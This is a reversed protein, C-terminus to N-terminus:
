SPNDALATLDQMTGNFVDQGGPLSGSNAYQWFTYTVWGGPMTGASTALRALWLPNSTAFAGSNGTCQSWWDSTTYIIASRGTKTRYETMFDSIWRVMSSTSLGYCAPGFPNYELDLAGPLTQHDATWAGGHAAFYDAQATGGSTDPLAFHAAGVVLGASRAGAVAQELRPSQVSIGQTASLLVFVAGASKAANWDVAVAPSVDFGPLGPVAATTTTASAPAASVPAFALSVAALLTIIRRASM